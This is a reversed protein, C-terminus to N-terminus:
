GAKSQQTLRTLLKSLYYKYIKTSINGHSFLAQEFKSASCYWVKCKSTSSLQIPTQYDALVVLEGFSDSVSITGSPKADIKGSKTCSLKGELVVYMGDLNSTGDYLIENAGVEITEGVNWILECEDRNLDVFISCSFFNKHTPTIYRSEEKSFGTLLNKGSDFHETKELSASLFANASLNRDRTNGYGPALSSDLSTSDDSDDIYMKFDSPQNASQNGFAMSTSQPSLPAESKTTPEADLGLGSFPERDQHADDSRDVLTKNNSLSLDQHLESLQSDEGLVFVNSPGSFQTKVKSKKSRLRSSNASDGAREYCYYARELDGYQEFNRAAEDFKGGAEFIMGARDVM